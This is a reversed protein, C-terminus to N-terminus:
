GRQGEGQPFNTNAMNGYFRTAYQDYANAAALLGATTAPFVGIHFQRSNYYIRARYFIRKGRREVTVGRFPVLGTYQRSINGSQVRMSIM